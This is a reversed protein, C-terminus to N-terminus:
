DTEIPKLNGVYNVRDSCGKRGSYKIRAFGAFVLEVLVNNIM